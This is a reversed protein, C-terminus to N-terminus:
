DPNKAYMKTLGDDYQTFMFKIYENVIIADTRKFAGGEEIEKFLMGM